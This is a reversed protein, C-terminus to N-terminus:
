KGEEMLGKVEAALEYLDLNICLQLRASNLESENLNFMELLLKQRQQTLALLLHESRLNSHSEKALESATALVEFVEDDFEVFDVEPPSDSAQVFVSQSVSARTAELEMGLGNLIQAGRGAEERLVGLLLHETGIHQHRLHRAELAAFELVRKAGPTLKPEGRLDEEVSSIQASVQALGVGTAELIQSATGDAKMMLALLLHETDVWASNRNSAEEQAVLVVSRARESFRQWM